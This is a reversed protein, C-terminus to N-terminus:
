EPRKDDSLWIVVDDVSADPKNAIDLRKEAVDAREESQKNKESDAGWRKVGLVFAGILSVAISAIIGALWGTM